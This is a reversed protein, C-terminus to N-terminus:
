SRPGGGEVSSSRNLICFNDGSMSDEMPTSLIRSWFGTAAIPLPQAPVERDM